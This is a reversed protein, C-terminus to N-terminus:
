PQGRLSRKGAETIGVLPGRQSLYGQAVLARVDWLECRLAPAPDDRRQDAFRAVLRPAQPSDADVKVGALLAPDAEARAVFKLIERGSAM